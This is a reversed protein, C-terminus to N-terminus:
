WGGLRVSRMPVDSRNPIEQGTRTDRVGTVGRCRKRIEERTMVRTRRTRSDYIQMSGTRIIEDCEEDTLEHEIPELYQRPIYGAPPDALRTHGDADLDDNGTGGPNADGEFRHSPFVFDDDDFDDNM